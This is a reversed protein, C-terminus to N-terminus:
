DFFRKIKASFPVKMEKAARVLGDLRRQGEQFEQLVKNGNFGGTKEKLREARARQMEIVQELTYRLTKGAETEPIFRRLETLEEQITLFREAEDKHIMNDLIESILKLSTEPSIQVIRSGADSMEKWYSGALEAQRRHAVSEDALDWKTTGLVVASLARDGVLKRFMDLNRRTTGLMRTQTIDHLYIVGALKMAKSYRVFPYYNFNALEKGSSCTRVVYCAM